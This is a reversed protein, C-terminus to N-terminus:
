QLRGEMAAKFVATQQSKLFTPPEGVDFGLGVACACFGALTPPEMTGDSAGKKNVVIASLMPWGMRHAHVCVELLHKAMSHNVKSWVAGNGEAIQKYSLYEGAKAAVRIIDVTKSLTLGGSNRQALESAAALYSAAHTKGSKEHNQLIMKLEAMTKSSLVVAM